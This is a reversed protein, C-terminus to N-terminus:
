GAGLTEQELWEAYTNAVLPLETAVISPVDYPHLEGVRAAVADFLARRTKLLLSVEQARETRGKWRYISSVGPVINACAALREAVVTEGIRGATEGDPCNVWVDIFAAQM